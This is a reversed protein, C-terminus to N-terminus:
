TMSNDFYQLIADTYDYCGCSGDVNVLTALTFVSQMGNYFFHTDPSVDYAIAQALVYVVDFFIAMRWHIAQVLSREDNYSM